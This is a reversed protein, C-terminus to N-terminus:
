QKVLAVQHIVKLNKWFFATYIGSAKGALDLITESRIISDAVLKGQPDYLIVRLPKDDSPRVIIQEAFPNPYVSINTEEFLDNVDVSGSVYVTDVLNTHSWRGRDDVSRMFLLHDTFPSTGWPVTVSLAGLWDSAPNTLLTDLPSLGFGPDNDWFYEIRVIDGHSSDAVYISRFNTLSWNLDADQTRFGIVHFGIPLGDLPVNIGTPVIDPAPVLAPNFAIAYGFGPDSDIWYEGRDIDQAHAVFVLAILALTSIPRVM